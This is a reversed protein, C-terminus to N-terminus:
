QREFISFIKKRHYYIFPQYQQTGDLHKAISKAQYEIIDEIKRQKTAFKTTEDLQELIAQILIRKTSDSLLGEETLELHNKSDLITFVTQDVVPSRFEEMLDYVLSARGRQLSHLFSIEANLGALMIALRVRSELIAYGYNLMSNVLDSAHQKIRGPFKYSTEYREKIVHWYIKSARAEISFLSSQQIIKKKTKIESLITKMQKINSSNASLKKSLSAILNIQNSIKGFIFQRAIEVTGRQNQLAQLQMLGIDGACSCPVTFLASGKGTPSIFFIPINNSACYEIVDSSMAIGRGSIIIDKLYLSPYEMIKKREHRVVIQRATKGLFSGAKNVVLRSPMTRLSKKSMNVGKITYQM